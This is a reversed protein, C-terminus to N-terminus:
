NKHESIHRGHIVKRSRLYGKPRSPIVKIEILYDSLDELHNQKESDEEIVDIPLKIKRPNNVGIEGIRGRDDQYNFWNKWKEQTGIIRFKLQPDSAQSGGYNKIELTINIVTGSRDDDVFDSSSASTQGYTESEEVTLLPEEKTFPEQLLLITAYFATLNVILDDTFPVFVLAILTSVVAVVPTTRTYPWKPWFAHWWKAFLCHYVLVVCKYGKEYGLFFYLKRGVIFLISGLVAIKLLHVDVLM